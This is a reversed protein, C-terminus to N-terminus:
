AGDPTVAPDRLPYVELSVSEVAGGIASLRLSLDDVPALFLETLAIAGDDAFLELSCRDLFLHLALAGDVLALPVARRGGFTALSPPAGREISVQGVGADYGVVIGSDAGAGIALRFAGSAGPVVTLLLELAADPPPLALPADPVLRQASRRQVPGRLRRLEAVPRQVIRPGAPTQRLALARPVTLAGRWPTTPLDRAYRWNSMWGITLRRGDEPPVDSWSIAAYYDRGRDFPLVTGAPHASEFTEGDFDGVFYEMWSGEPGNLSVLLVWREAGDAGEIPLPFLDPCEWVGGQSGHGAGFEGTARWARLDPSAYFRVSQGITVVMVWRGTPAHWCVKPDRFVRLEPAAIVPNGEYKTWTRGRDRSYALSQAQVGDRWHTFLAVLGSGGDFFGSSDHPDVVASGSWIAGLEDLVLAVPLHEWAVLDTSVAHGWSKAAGAGGIDPVYQYFLHYEGAYYVLGNPDNLWGSEPTFHIAPRAMATM